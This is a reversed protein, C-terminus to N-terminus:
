WMGEVRLKSSTWCIRWLWEVRACINQGWNTFSGSFRRKSFWVPGLVVSIWIRGADPEPGPGEPVFHLALM